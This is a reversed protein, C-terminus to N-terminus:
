PVAFRFRQCPNNLWAWQQINAGDGVRCLGVDLVKSGGHALIRVMGDDLPEFWWQQTPDDGCNRQVVDAGDMRPLRAVALCKQSHGAIVQYYGDTKHVFSWRQDSTGANTWLVVDAGDATSADKVAMVRGSNPNIITVDAVPQLRYQQCSHDLKSWQRLGTGGTGCDGSSVFKESHRAQIRLWGEGAPQLRWQQNAGYSWSAQQILAGDGTASPGGAVELAKGTDRNLLRYYGNDLFDLSWQQRAEGCDAKQPSGSLDLCSNDQRNVLTYYVLGTPTLAAGREGSPPAIATDLPLPTGFSPTGDANWSFKQVRTTRTASCGDRAEANAHYVIWNEKGDPSTFFGNHGPAYVGNADSRQFVPEPHKVWAAADLPDSGTLTLMGLKYDPGSCASASYIIFTKGDHQLAEPGENVPDPQQEWKETPTSIRVRSGSIKLPSSMPAIYLNQTQDEFTSFLFYLKGGDMKLISGDIAWGDHTADYIRGKFTYPGLPDAGSSELVYTRQNDLTADTGASYYLYWRQGDPGDLLHFEPAWVNCCRSSNSDAWILVPKVTALGAITPSKWMRISGWQTSTMYYNGDYFVLWPDAGDVPNLPNYFTPKLPNDLTAASQSTRCAPLLLLLCGGLALRALWKM